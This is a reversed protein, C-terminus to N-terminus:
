AMSTQLSVQLDIDKLNVYLALFPFILTVMILM